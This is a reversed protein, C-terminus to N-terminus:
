REDHRDAKPIMVTFVSRESMHLVQEAVSGLFIRALGTRGHSAMCILDTGDAECADVITAAVNRGTAVHLRVDAIAALREERVKALREMIIEELDPRAVYDLAGQGYGYAEGATILPDVVHVLTIRAGAAEALERAADVARLSVDSFDTPVLIHEAIAM